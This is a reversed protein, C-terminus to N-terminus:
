RHSDDQSDDPDKSLATVISLYIDDITANPPALITIEDAKLKSRVYGRSIHHDRFLKVPIDNRITM